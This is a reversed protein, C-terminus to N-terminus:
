EVVEEVSMPLSVRVLTGQNLESIVQFEAGILDSRERMGLLGYKSGSPIEEPSFGCGDDRIEIV